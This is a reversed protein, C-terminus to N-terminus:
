ADRAESLEGEALLEAASVGLAKAIWHLNDLSPAHKGREIKSINVRHIDAEEALAEQSLGRAERLRRMNGAVVMRLPSPRNRKM